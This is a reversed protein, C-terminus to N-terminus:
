IGHESILFLVFIIPTMSYVSFCFHLHAPCIPLIFSLLHILRQVSLCGPSPLSWSSSWASSPLAVYCPLLSSGSVPVCSVSSLPLCQQLAVDQLPQVFGLVLVLVIWFSNFTSPESIHNFCFAVAYFFMSMAIELDKVTTSLCYLNSIWWETIMIQCLFLWIYM